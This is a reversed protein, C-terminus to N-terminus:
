HGRVAYRLKGLEVAAFPILSLGMLLLVDAVGLSSVRFLQSFWPVTVVLIQLCSGAVIAGFLRYNSWFGMRFVSTEFSRVALVYFLQSLSLVCFVLTRAHSLREEYTVNGAVNSRLEVAFLVLCVAAMLLGVVIIGRLREGTLISENRPRPPKRMVNAEAPEFGLALAPLGDTVLNIWLIHVPLLPIPMGLLLAGILVLVESFNATLLYVVFKRINNYIVRGEEVAAVITAFNDDALIMSAAQRSVDTGNIGMAVGIDAQKLAPADNVGDGTMAVTRDAQQHARVIRIKHQPTVRAFVAIQDLQEFLEEDSMQDLESGRVVRDGEQLLELERAISEATGPHDGTIMIPRIGAERCRRVAEKAEPRIPDVIGVLGLCTLGVEAAEADGNLQGDMGTRQALALVRSGSRALEDARRSWAERQEPSDNTCLPLVRDSAGKVLLRHVGEPTRNLTAMRKRESSFPIEDVRPHDAKWQAIDMGEDRARKVIAAETAGGLVDGSATLEADNCLVGAQLLRKRGEDSADVSHVENVTMVNQTLTGTKDSCIVNVAGLTEVATLKRIIAHRQAMRGSGLALTVSIIAPLGEPIAAVALSVSTLLMESFLHRTWNERPEREVGLIFVVVAVCIVTAALVRGLRVLQQQLPTQRSETTGLLEAIHGLETQMGTATVIASAHGRIVATGSFLMSTRDGLDSSANVSAVAKTVALSEGTLASEDVEVDAASLVRADVPVIDGSRLEIVDGVVVDQAPIDCLEGNRRVRTHPQSMKQLAQIAEEARWEQVFGIGANVVVIIAILLADIWEGIVVSILAAVVLLGVMVDLFQMLFLQWRNKAAAERLQNRGNRELRAASERQDLGDRLNTQLQEAVEAPTLSWPTSVTM